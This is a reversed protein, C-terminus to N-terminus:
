NRGVNRAIRDRDMQKDTLILLDASVIQLPSMLLQIEPWQVNSPLVLRDKHISTTASAVHVFVLKKSM